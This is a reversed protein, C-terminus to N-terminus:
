KDELRLFRRANNYFIDAKEPESLFDLGNLYEVSASVAGPWVMQDTGFMVRDLIGATQARKLFDVAYSKTLPDAWLLVGLDAYVGPFMVMLRVAHEY